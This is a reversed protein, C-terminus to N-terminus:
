LLVASDINTVVQENMSDKEMVTIVTSKSVSVIFTLEDLLFVSERAGKDAAKTLGQNLKDIQEDSLEIGNEHLRMQAHQSFTIPAPESAKHLFHQFSQQSKHTTKSQTVQNLQPKIIPGTYFNKNIQLSM